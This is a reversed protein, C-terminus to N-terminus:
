YELMVQEGYLEKVRNLWRNTKIKGMFVQGDETGKYVRGEGDGKEVLEIYEQTLPGVYELIPMDFSGFIKVFDAPPLYGKKFLFLDFLVVDHSEEWNHRGAFSQSGYFEGFVTIRDIGRFTKDERFVKDLDDAYKNEFIGVAEVFPHNKHIMERRTGFKGFGKTFNSKKSLKRNWEARFNSGDIKEFSFVTKGLHEENYRQISHYSKM